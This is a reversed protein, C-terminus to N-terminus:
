PVLTQGHGSGTTPMQCVGYLRNKSPRNQSCFTVLPIKVNGVTAQVLCVNKLFLMKTLENKPLSFTYYFERCEQLTENISDPELTMEWIKLERFLFFHIGKNYVRIIRGTGPVEQYTKKDGEDFRNGFLALSPPPTGM